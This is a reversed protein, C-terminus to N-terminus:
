IIENEVICIQRLYFLLIYMYIKILIFLQRLAPMPSQFNNTTFLSSFVFCPYCTLDGNNPPDRDRLQSQNPMTCLIVHNVWNQWCTFTWGIANVHSPCRWCSHNSRNIMSQGLPRTRDHLSVGSVCWPASNPGFPESQWWIPNQPGQKKKKKM